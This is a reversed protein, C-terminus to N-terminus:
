PRCTPTDAAEGACRVAVERSRTWEFFASYSLPAAVFSGQLEDCGVNTLFNLQEEFDVGEAIVRQGRAHASRVISQVILTGDPHTVLDRVFARPLRLADLPLWALSQLSTHTGGFDGLALSVGMERLARTTAGLERQAGLMEGEVVQLELWSADTDCAELAHAVRGLFKSERMQAISVPLTARLAIGTADRLCRVDQCAKRLLRSGLEVVFESREAASLFTGLAARGHSVDERHPVAEFGIVAYSRADIRPEYRITVDEILRHFRAHRDGELHPPAALRSPVSTRRSAACLAMHEIRKQLVAMPTSRPVFENAGAGLARAIADTDAPDALVIVTAHAGYLLMRLEQCTSPGDPEHLNMGLAVVDYPYGALRALAATGSEVEDAYVGAQTCSARLAARFEADADVILVSGRALAGLM